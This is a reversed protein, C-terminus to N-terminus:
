FFKFDENRESEKIIHKKAYKQAYSNEECIMNVSSSKDYAFFSILTFAIFIVSFVTIAFKKIKM